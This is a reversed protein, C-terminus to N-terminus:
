DPFTGGTHCSSEMCLLIHNCLYSLALVSILQCDGTAHSVEVFNHLKLCESVLGPCKV